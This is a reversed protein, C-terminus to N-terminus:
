QGVMWLELVDFFTGGVDRCWFRYEDGGGLPQQWYHLSEFTFLFRWEGVPPLTGTHCVNLLVDPTPEEPLPPVTPPFTPPDLTPEELAGGISYYVYGSWPGFTGCANLTRIRARYKGDDPIARDDYLDGAQMGIGGTRFDDIQAYGGVTDREIAIQYERIAEMPAWFFAVRGQHTAVDWRSPANADPCSIDSVTRLGGATVRAGDVASPSVPSAGCAAASLAVLALLAIRMEILSGLREIEDQSM